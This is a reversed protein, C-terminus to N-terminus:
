RRFLWVAPFGVCVVVADGSVQGLCRRKSFWLSPDLHELSLIALLVADLSSPAAGVQMELRRPVHLSSACGIWPSKSARRFALM